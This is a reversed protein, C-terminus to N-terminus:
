PPAGFDGNALELVREITTPSESAAFRASRASPDACAQVQPSLPPDFSVSRVTGDTSVELTLTTQARISGDSPRPTHEEFCRLAASIVQDIGNEVEAITLGKPAAGNHIASATLPKPAARAGSPRRPRGQSRAADTADTGDREFRGEAPAKLLVPQTRAASHVGVSGREVRVLVQDEQIQVGFVTGHVSIRTELALVSFRDVRPGPIVEARLSGSVLLVEIQPNKSLIRAQSGPQLSWRAREQHLVAVPHDRAVLLEGAPLRDGNIERVTSAQISLPHEQPPRDMGLGVASAAIAFAFAAFWLHSTEGGRGLPKPKRDSLATLIQSELDKQPAGPLAHRRVEEAVQALARAEASRGLM